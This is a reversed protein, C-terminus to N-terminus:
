EEINTVELWRGSAKSTYKLRIPYIQEGARVEKRTGDSVMPKGRALIEFGGDAWNGLTAGVQEDTPTKWLGSAYPLPNVPAHAFGDSSVAWYFIVVTAAFIIICAIPTSVGHRKSMKPTDTGRM